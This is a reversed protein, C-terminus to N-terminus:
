GSALKNVITVKGTFDGAKIGAVKPSFPFDAHQRQLDETPALAVDQQAIAICSTGGSLKFCGTIRAYTTGEDGGLLFGDGDVAIKDNVFIVGQMVSTPAPTLQKRFSLKQALADTKYTKGDSSAVFELALTGDFDVNGGLADIKVGDVAVTMT